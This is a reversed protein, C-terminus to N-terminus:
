LVEYSFTFNWDSIGALADYFVRMSARDTATDGVIACPLPASSVPAWRCGTGALDAAVATALNSAIPLTLQLETAAGVSTPTLQVSGSVTVVNGVRMWQCKRATSSSVNTTNTLTPTYTGSVIYQNTAGTVAGGNNHLTTGYPAGTVNVRFSGSTGGQVQMADFGVGGTISLGPAANPAIIVTGANTIQFRNAISAASGSTTSTATRFLLGGSNDLQLLTVEDTSLATWVGASSERANFSSFWAGTSDMGESATSYQFAKATAVWAGPTVTGVGFIGNADLLLGQAESNGFDLRTTSGGLTIPRYSAGLTNDVGRIAFGAARAEFRIGQTDGALGLANSADATKFLGRTGAAPTVGLGLNGASSISAALTAAANTYFKFGAGNRNVVEYDAAAGPSANFQVATHTINGSTGDLRLRESGNLDFCMPFTASSGFVARTTGIDLSMTVKNGTATSAQCTITTTVAGGNVDLLTIPLINNPGIGVRYDFYNIGLPDASSVGYRNTITYMAGTLTPAQLRIGYLNTITITGSASAHGILVSSMFAAMNTVAANNAGASAGSNVYAWASVGAMTGITGQFSSSQGRVGESLTTNGTAPLASGHGSVANIGILYACSPALDTSSQRVANATILQSSVPSTAGFNTASFAALIATVQTNGTSTSSVQPVVYLGTKYVVTSGTNTFPTANNLLLLTDISSTSGYGYTTVTVPLTNVWAAGTSTLVSGSESLLSSTVLASAGSSVTLFKGANGALTPMKDLAAEILGFETRMNLSTLTASTTPNGTPTYYPNTM